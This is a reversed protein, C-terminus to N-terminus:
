CTNQRALAAFDTGIFQSIEKNIERLYDVAVQQSRAYEMITQNEQVATQLARLQDIEKQSVGGTTQGKRISAQATSLQELLKMAKRDANLRTQARDYRIFPESGLLSEILAETAAELNEPLRVRTTEM